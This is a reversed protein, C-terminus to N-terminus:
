HCRTMNLAHPQDVCFVITKEMPNINDLLAQAVLDIQKPIIITKNFDKKKYVKKYEVEGELVVDDKTYIYSDINTRIKKVKYPSLYGDNIGDKLSYEYVPKGFYQYTDVNDKRKPTATLGLHVASGFYDLIERWSGEENASGRHCEDIIILDFFDTPYQKYYGGINEKESIAQYIAFFIHANTPVQGNRAKIESGDIKVLTKKLRTM